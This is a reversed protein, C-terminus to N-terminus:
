KFYGFEVIYTKAFSACNSSEFWLEDNINPMAKSKQYIYKALLLHNRTTTSDKHKWSEWCELHSFSYRGLCHWKYNLLWITNSTKHRDHHLHKSDQFHSFTWRGFVKINLRERNPTKWNPIENSIDSAIVCNVFHKCINQLVKSRIQSLFLRM